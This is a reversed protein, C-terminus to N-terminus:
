PMNFSDFDDKIKGSKRLEEWRKKVRQEFDWNSSDRKAQKYDLSNPDDLAAFHDDLYEVASMSVLKREGDVDKWRPMGDMAKLENKIYGDIDYGWKRSTPTYSDANYTTWDMEDLNKETAEKYQSETIIGALMQMRLKEQTMKNIKNHKYM